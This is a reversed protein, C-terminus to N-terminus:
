MANLIFVGVQLFSLESGGGGKAGGRWGDVCIWIWIEYFLLGKFEQESPITCVRRAASIHM